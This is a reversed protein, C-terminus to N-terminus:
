RSGPGEHRLQRDGSFLDLRSARGSRRRLTEEDLSVGLGPAEPLSLHGDRVAPLGRAMEAAGDTSFDNFNELVKANPSAALVHLAAATSIPGGVNHPALMVQYAEAWSAIKRAESIGGCMTVDPQAVDVARLEFIRRFEMRDHVREGSAVPIPSGATVSALGEVNHPPVPEEIWSPDLPALREALALATAPTFRGHMEVFVEVDPGVADRVARVLEISRDREPRSLEDTATGFPDLKLGRYGREVVRGAAAQFEEPTREVTYWGNAYVPVRDRIPGGLLRYVPQGLVKGVIDWCAIEVAAIGSMMVEGPRSYDNRRMRHVLDEVAMPDSGVVHAPVAEALYGLLADTDNVMRVEGVGEVGDDTRVVAVTLNRWTGGYVHSRVDLIKLPGESAM